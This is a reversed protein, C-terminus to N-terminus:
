LLLAPVSFHRAAKAMVEDATVLEAEALAAAALHLADLTRLATKQTCLWDRALHFHERHLELVQYCGRRIDEMFAAQIKAAEENKLEGMRVLRGLASAFETETLFSLCVPDDGSALLLAQVRDSLPEPRYYPILASTDFYRM